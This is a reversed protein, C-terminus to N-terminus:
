AYKSTALARVQELGRRSHSHRHLNPQLDKPRPLSHHDRSGHPPIQLGSPTRHGAGHGAEGSFCVLSSSSPQPSFPSILFLLSLPSLTSIYFVARLNLYTCYLSCTILIAGDMRNVKISKDSTKNVENNSSKILFSALFM